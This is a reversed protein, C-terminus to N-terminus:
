CVGGNSSGFFRGYEEKLEELQKYAERKLIAMAEDETFPKDGQCLFSKQNLLIRIMEHALRRMTITVSDEKIARNFISM